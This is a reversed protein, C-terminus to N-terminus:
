LRNKILESPASQNTITRKDADEVGEWNNNLMHASMEEMKDAVDQAGQIIVSGRLYEDDIIIQPVLLRNSKFTLKANKAPLYMEQLLLKKVSKLDEERSDLVAANAHNFACRLETRVSEIKTRLASSRLEYGQPHDHILFDYFLSIYQPKTEPLVRGVEQATLNLLNACEIALISASTLSINM